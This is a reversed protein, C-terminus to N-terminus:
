LFILRRSKWSCRRACVLMDRDSVGDKRPRISQTSYVDFGRLLQMENEARNLGGQCSSRSAVLNVLRRPLHCVVAVRLPGPAKVQKSDVRCYQM